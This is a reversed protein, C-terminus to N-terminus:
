AFNTKMESNNDVTVLFVPSALGAKPNAKQESNPSAAREEAFRPLVHLVAAWLEEGTLVGSGPCSQFLTRPRPPPPTWPLQYM